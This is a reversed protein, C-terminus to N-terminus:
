ANYGQKQKWRKTEFSILVLCMTQSHFLKQKSSEVFRSADISKICLLLSLIVFVFLYVKLPFTWGLYINKIIFLTLDFLYNHKNKVLKTIQQCFPEKSKDRLINKELSYHVFQKVCKDLIIPNKMWPRNLHICDSTLHVVHFYLQTICKM